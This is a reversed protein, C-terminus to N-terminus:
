GVKRTIEEKSQLTGVLIKYANRIERTHAAHGALIFNKSKIM